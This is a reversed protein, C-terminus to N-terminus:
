YDWTNLGELTDMRLANAIYKNLSMGAQYASVLLMEHVAPDVNLVIHGDCTPAPAIGRVACDALYKDVAAHFATQVEDKHKAEYTVDEDIGLIKGTYAHEQMSHEPLTVYGKYTIADM